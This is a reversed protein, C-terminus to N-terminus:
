QKVVPDSKSIRPLINVSWTISVSPKSESNGEISLYLRLEFYAEAVLSRVATFHMQM